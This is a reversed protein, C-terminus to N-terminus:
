FRLVPVQQPGYSRKVWARKRGDKTCLGSITRDPRSLRLLFGGARDVPKQCSPRFIRGTEGHALRARTANYLARYHQFCEDYAAHRTPDPAFTGLTKVLAAAGESLSHFAGTAVGTLLISGLIGAESDGLSDIPIGLVDAKIQLWAESKAGGGTAHLRSIQIGAEQLKEMNVRMEYAIGELVAKYLDSLSHEITLGTIVGKAGPDMYPTGAGAFHPLVFIGTPGEGMGRELAQYISEGNKEAEARASGALRDTFWKVLAGGTFSFAYTAYLDKAAFPVMAYGGQHLVEPNSVGPFVPTVCQTTGAGDVAVGREFVGAAVAAAVQDHCCNVVMAGQTLGLERRLVERVPGAVTGSPVPKSLLAPDIGACDLMERSWDKVRIDLAMTRSALSCDIQRVGTLMYVAYDQMLLICRAKEWVEPRNRRVWLLKPLSYMAHPTMGTIGAVREAGMTEAIEACEKVGRPDTYLMADMLPEDKEDLLVFSEGFSSVGMGEIDPVARAAESILERIAQWIARPDVEHESQSRSAPYERYAHFRAGNQDYVAIKSGTTGIDIGAISM